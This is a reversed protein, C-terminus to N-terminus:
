VAAAGWAEYNARTLPWADPYEGYITTMDLGASKGLAIAKRINERDDLEGGMFDNNARVALCGHRTPAHSAEIIFFKRPADYAQWSHYVEEPFGALFPAVVQVEEPRLGSYNEVIITAGPRKELIHRALGPLRAAMRELNSKDCKLGLTQTGARCRACRCFGQDGQELQVGGVDFTDLLWDISKTYFPLLSEDSPCAVFHEAPDAPPWRKKLPAGTETVAQSEPHAALYRDLAYESDGSCYVGGFADIGVGPIIAVNKSRAYECLRRAADTGGHSDRLFGWLVIGVVGYHSAADVARTYNALFSDADSCFGYAWRMRLNWTWWIKKM